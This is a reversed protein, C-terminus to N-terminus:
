IKRVDTMRWFIKRLSWSLAHAIRLSAHAPLASLTRRDRMLDPLERLAAMMGDWRIIASGPHALLALIQGVIHFPLLLEFLPPPMNKVFVRINGQTRQFIGRVRADDAVPTEDHRLIAESLQITEHGMLRARFALDINETEDELREDFGGLANFLDARITLPGCPAFIRGDDPLAELPWGAGCRWAFGTFSYGYGCSYLQEPDQASILASGFLGADPYRRAANLLAMLWEPEACDKADLFVFLAGKAEAAARNCLATHSADSPLRILRCRSDPLALSAAGSAIVLTEFNVYTQAALATLCRPLNKGSEPNVVFISIFM